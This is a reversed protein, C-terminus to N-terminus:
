RRAHVFPAFPSLCCAAKTTVRSSSGSREWWRSVLLMCPKLCQRGVGFSKCADELVRPRLSCYVAWGLQAMWWQAVYVWLESWPRVPAARLLIMSARTTVTMSLEPHGQVGNRSLKRCVLSLQLLSAGRLGSHSKQLSEALGWLQLDAFTGEDLM